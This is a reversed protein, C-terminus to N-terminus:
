FNWYPTKGNKFYYDQHYAEAPYFESAKTVTTAIKLGKAKLEREVSLLATSSMERDYPLSEPYVVFAFTKYSDFSVTNDYDTSIKVSACSSVTILIIILFSLKKM